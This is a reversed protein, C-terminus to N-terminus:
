ATKNLPRPPIRFSLLGVISLGVLILSTPEPVLLIPLVNGNTDTATGGLFRVSEGPPVTLVAVDNPVNAPFVDRLMFRAQLLDTTPFLFSNVDDVVLDASSLELPFFQFYSEPGVLSLVVDFSAPIFTRPANPIADAFISIGTNLLEGMFGGGSPTALASFDFGQLEVPSTVEFSFVQNGLFLGQDIFIGQVVGQAHSAPSHLVTVAGLIAMAYLLKRM